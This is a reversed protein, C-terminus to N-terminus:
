APAPDHTEESTLLARMHALALSTRWKITGAPEGTVEAMERYSLGQLYHLVLLVRDAPEVRDLAAYLRRAEDGQAAAEPPGPPTPAEHTRLRAALAASRRG